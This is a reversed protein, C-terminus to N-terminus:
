ANCLRSLSFHVAGWGLLVRVRQALPLNQYGNPLDGQLGKDKCKFSTYVKDMWGDMWGDVWGGM